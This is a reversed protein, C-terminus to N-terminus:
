QHEQIIKNLKFVIEDYAFEKGDAYGYENESLYPGPNAAFDRDSLVEVRFEELAKILKDKATPLEKALKTLRPLRKQIRWNGAVIKAAEIRKQHKM